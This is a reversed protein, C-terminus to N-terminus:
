RRPQAPAGGADDADADPSGGADEEARTMEAPNFTAAAISDGARGAGGGGGVLGVGAGEPARAEEAAARPEAIAVAVAPVDRHGLNYVPTRMEDG